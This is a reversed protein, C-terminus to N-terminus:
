PRAIMYFSTLKLRVFPGFSGSIRYDKIKTPLSPTFLHINGPVHGYVSNGIRLGYRTGEIPIPESGGGAIPLDSFSLHVDAALRAEKESASLGSGRAIITVNPAYYELIPAYSDSFSKDVMAVPRSCTRAYEGVTRLEDYGYKCGALQHAGSATGTALAFLLLAAYARGPLRDSLGAFCLSLFPVLGFFYYSHKHLFFYFVFNFLILLAILIAQRTPRTLTLGMGVLGGVLFLPSCGWLMEAFLLNLTLGSAIGAKSASGHLQTSLLYGPDRILHYGYFPVLVLAIGLLFLAFNLTFLRRRERGLLEWVVIAVLMIVAFQKSFMAAGLFLGAIFLDLRGGHTRARVYFYVAWVSLSVFLIDTQVNRGLLLFIPTSAFLVAAELAAEKRLTLRGLLYLGLLSLMSFAVPVLRAAWESDGFMSFSAYLLYSLLPPIYLDLMNKYTPTLLSHTAYNRAVSAYWAENLGHFGGFSDSLGFVLLGADIVLFVILCCTLLGAELWM